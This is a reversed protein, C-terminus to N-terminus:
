KIIKQSFSFFPFLFLFLFFLNFDFSSILCLLLFSLGSLPQILLAVPCLWVSPSLAFFFSFLFLFLLPAPFDAFSCFRFYRSSPPREKRSFLGARGRLSRRRGEITRGDRKREKKRSLWSAGESRRRHRFSLLTPDEFTLTREPLLSCFCLAM